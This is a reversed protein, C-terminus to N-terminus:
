APMVIHIKLASLFFPTEEAVEHIRCHGKGISHGLIKGLSVVVCPALDDGQVLRGGNSTVQGDELSLTRTGIKLVQRDGAERIVALAAAGRKLGVIVAAADERREELEGQLPIPDRRIRHLLDGIVPSRM